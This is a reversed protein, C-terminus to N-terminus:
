SLVKSFRDLYAKGRITKSFRKQFWLDLAYHLYINALLPSIPGGQPSGQEAKQLIGDVMVGAKLWRGILRLIVPDAVRVRLMKMLWQHDLHDFFGRIDTEFVTSVRGAMCQNRIQRLADHASRGPRFGYSCPLFDQEYITELIRAVARQLLRDEVTPIGLPRMKGDAKPIEVRRVPLPRYSGTKLRAVLSQCRTRLHTEFSRTTERDLGPAGNRNMQRWTEVLFDETLLHALSTFALRPAMRARQAIRDLKTTM